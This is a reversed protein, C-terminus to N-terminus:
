VHRGHDLRASSVRNNAYTRGPRPTEMRNGVGVRPIESRMRAPSSELGSPNDAPRRRQPRWRPGPRSPRDPEVGDHTATRDGANGDFALIAPAHLPPFLPCSSPEWTPRRRSTKRYGALPNPVPAPTHPASSISACPWSIAQGKADERRGQGNTRGRYPTDHTDVAEEARPTM